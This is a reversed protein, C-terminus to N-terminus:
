VGSARAKANAAAQSRLAADYGEVRDVVEGTSPNVVYYINPGHVSGVQGPPASVGPLTQTVIHNDTKKVPQTM